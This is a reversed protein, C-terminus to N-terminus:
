EFKAGYEAYTANPVFTGTSLDFTGGDFPNDDIKTVDPAGDWGSSIGGSLYFMRWGNTTADSRYGINDDTTDGTASTTLRFVIYYNDINGVNAFFINKNAKIHEVTKAYVYATTESALNVFTNNELILNGITAKTGNFLKFKQEIGERSYFINNKLVINAYTATSSSVSLLYRQNTTGGPYDFKCKEITFNTVYRDNNGLYALPQQITSLTIFSDYFVVDKLAGNAQISLLYSLNGDADSVSTADLDMNYCVFMGNNADGPTMRIQRNMKLSSKKQPNDGILILKELNTKTAYDFTVNIGDKIFIVGSAPINDSTIQFDSNSILLAEGYVSEKIEIGNIDITEGADYLAKYSSIVKTAEVQIKDVAWAVGKNVQVTLDKTNDATAARGLTTSAASEAPAKLTLVAINTQADPEGLVATWGAPASVFADDGKVVVKLSVEEGYGVALVGNKFEAVNETQIDCVLAEVIPLSYMEGDHLTVVLEGNVVDVDKFFEDTVTVDGDTTASVPRGDAGFVQTAGNGFDVTWYGNADIAFEPTPANDGVAKEGTDEGNIVWTGNQSITIQPYSVTGQKGQTLTLETNDSLVLKYSNSAEDYVCSQITQKGDTLVKLVNMNDNIASVQAELSEVRNKLEDVDNRLDDTDCGAWVFLMLLFPLLSKFNKM